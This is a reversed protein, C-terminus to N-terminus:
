VIYLLSLEEMFTYKSYYCCVVSMMPDIVYKLLHIALICANHKIITLHLWCLYPSLKHKM